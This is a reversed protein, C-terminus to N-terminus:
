IKKIQKKVTSEPDLYNFISQESNNHSEWWKIVQPMFTRFQVFNIYAYEGTILKVFKEFFLEL